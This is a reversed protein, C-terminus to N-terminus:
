RFDELQIRCDPNEWVEFYSDLSAGYYMSSEDDNSKIVISVHPERSIDNLFCRLVSNDSSMYPFIVDNYAKKATEDSYDDIVIIISEAMYKQKVDYKEITFGNLELEYILEKAASYYPDQKKHEGYCACFVIVMSVVIVVFLCSNRKM